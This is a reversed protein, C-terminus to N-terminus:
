ECSSRFFLGSCMQEQNSAANTPINSANTPINSQKLNIKHMNNLFVDIPGDRYIIKLTDSKGINHIAPVESFKGDELSIVGLSNQRLFAYYTKFGDYWLVGNHNDKPNSVNLTRFTDEIYSINNQQITNSLLSQDKLTVSMGATVLKSGNAFSNPDNYHLLDIPVSRIVTTSGSRTASSEGITIPGFEAASNYAKIGAKLIQIKNSLPATVGQAAATQISIMLPISAISASIIILFLMISTTSVIKTSTMKSLYYLKIHKM